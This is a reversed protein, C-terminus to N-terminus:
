LAFMAGHMSRAEATNSHTEPLSMGRAADRGGSRSKTWNDSSGYGDRKSLGAAATTECSM